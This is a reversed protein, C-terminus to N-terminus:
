MEVQDSLRRPKLTGGQHNEVMQKSKWVRRRSRHLTLTSAGEKLQVVQLSKWSSGVNWPM